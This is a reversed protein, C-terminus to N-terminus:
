IHVLADDARLHSLLLAVPPSPLSQLRPSSKHHLEGGALLSGQMEESFAHDLLGIREHAAAAMAYMMM